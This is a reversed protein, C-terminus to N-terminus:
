RRDGTESHNGFLNSSPDLESDFFGCNVRIEEAEEYILDDPGGKEDSDAPNLLGTQRPSAESDSSPQEEEEEGRGTDAGAGVAPSQNSTTSTANITRSAAPPSTQTQIPPTSPNPSTQTQTPLANASMSPHTSPVRPDSDAISVTSQTAAPITPSDHQGIAESISPGSATTSWADQQMSQGTDTRSRKESRSDELSMSPVYRLRWGIRVVNVFDVVPEPSTGISFPASAVSFLWQKASPNYRHVLLTFVQILLPLSASLGCEIVTEVAGKQNESTIFSRPISNLCSVM